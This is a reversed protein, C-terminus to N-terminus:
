RTRRRKTVRPYFEGEAHFGDPYIQVPILHIKRNHVVGYTNHAAFGAAFYTATDTTLTAVEKVGAPEVAVVRCDELGFAAGLGNPDFKGLLRPPRADGMLRLSDIRGLVLTKKSREAYRAYGVGRAVLTSEVARLFENPKQTFRLGHQGHQQALSGEGDFAAALFGAAYSEDRCWVPLYRVLRANCRGSILADTRKWHIGDGAGLGERVLWRHEGTAYLEEGSELVIRYVPLLTSSAALVCGSRFRRPMGKGPAEEDIAVLYDGVQLSGAPVWTLNAMLVPTDSTVCFAQQWNPFPAFELDFRCICGNEVYSHSGSADTWGYASFHHSHGCLGSSGTAIAMYRSVNIPYAKSASAKYGHEIRYGLFDLVSMYPLGRIKLEEFRLLASLELNRLGSLEKGYRWLWRRLRDEHNGEIFIREADPNAEARRALWGHTDDLEDQLHFRRSPNQDYKSILYFDSIDGNYVELNPHLDNWFHEVAELTADDQFPRQVDNIIIIRYGDPLDRMRIEEFRRPEEFLSEQALVRRVRNAYHTDCYKRNPSTTEFTNLCGEWACHKTCVTPEHKANQM